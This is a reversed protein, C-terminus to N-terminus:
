KRRAMKECTEEDELASALALAKDLTLSRDLTMRPVGMRFTKERYPRPPKNEQELVNMGHRLVRNVLKALSTGQRHAQEKLSQMLDDDIRVTTRM